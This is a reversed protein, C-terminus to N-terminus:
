VDMEKELTFWLKGVAECNRRGKLRKLKGSGNALMVLCNGWANKGKLVRSDMKKTWALLELLNERRKVIGLVLCCNKNKNKWFKNKPIKFNKVVNMREFEFIPNAFILLFFIRCCEIKKWLKKISFIWKFDKFRM